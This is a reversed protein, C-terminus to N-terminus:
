ILLLSNIFTLPSLNHSNFFLFKKSRSNSVIQQFSVECTPTFTFKHLNQFSTYSIGRNKYNCCDMDFFDKDCCGALNCCYDNETSRTGSQCAMCDFDIPSLGSFLILFSLITKVTM